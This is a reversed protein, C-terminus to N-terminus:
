ILLVLPDESDTYIIGYGPCIFFINSFFFLLISIYFLRSISNSNILRYINPGIPSFPTIEFLKTDPYISLIPRSLINSFNDYVSGKINSTKLM